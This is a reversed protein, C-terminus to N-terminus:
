ILPLDAYAKDRIHARTVFQLPVEEKAINVAFFTRAEHPIRARFRKGETRVLSYKPVGKANIYGPFVDKERAELIVVRRWGWLFLFWHNWFRTRPVSEEGLVLLGRVASTHVKWGIVRIGIAISLSVCGLVILVYLLIIDM